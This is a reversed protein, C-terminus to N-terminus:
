IHKLKNLTAYCLVYDKMWPRLDNLKQVRKEKSKTYAETDACCVSEVIILEEPPTNLIVECHELLERKLVTPLLSLMKRPTVEDAKEILKSTVESTTIIGQQWWSVINLIKNM